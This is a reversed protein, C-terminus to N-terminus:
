TSRLIHIIIAHVAQNFVDLCRGARDTEIETPARAAIPEIVM